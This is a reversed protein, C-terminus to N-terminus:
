EIQKQVNMNYHSYMRAVPERLVVVVRVNPLTAKIRKVSDGFYLYRVSAEGVAKYNAAARFLAWYETESGASWNYWLENLVRAPAPGKPVPAAGESAFFNPEKLSPMFIDPHQALYDALSTTGCKAAGVILFTPKM